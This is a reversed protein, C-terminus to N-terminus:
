KNEKIFLKVSRREVKPTRNIGEWFYAKDEEAGYMDIENGFNSAYLYIDDDKKMAVYYHDYHCSAKFPINNEMLFVLVEDENCSVDYYMYIGHIEDGPVIDRKEWSLPSNTSTKKFGYEELLSISEKNALMPTKDELDRDGYDDKQIKVIFSSSSSNSVFGNRIKM